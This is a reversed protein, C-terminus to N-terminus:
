SPLILGAVKFYIILGFVDVCTAILPGSMLAPDLKLRRFIIPLAAGITAALIINACMSIGVAMSLLPDHELFSVILSGVVAVTVGIFIGLFSERLVVKFFDKVGLDGIALSRIIMTASQTGANGGMAILIPVFFTLAVMNNIAQNNFKLVFASMSEVVVLVILWFSRKWVLKFFNAEMYPKEFPLVAAIKEFDETAEKEILDVIDDVTIVGILKGSSDIVPANVLDYKKFTKAVAIDSTEVYVKLHDINSMFDKVPMDAPAKILGQLDVAGILRHEADTVYVSNIDMGSDFKLTDQLKLIASRATMDKALEVFETTMVAGATGEEYTLLRAVDAAENKRMLRLFKKYVREPLDKFLDAREDSAMENLIESVNADELNSLLFSQQEVRLSEFLEIAHKISLLKFILIKEQKEFEHWGEVLDMIPIKGLIGKLEIFNKSKLCEKIEPLFLALIKVNKKDKNNM